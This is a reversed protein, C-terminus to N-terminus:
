KEHIVYNGGNYEYNVGYEVKVGMEFFSILTFVIRVSPACHM